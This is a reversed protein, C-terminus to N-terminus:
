SQSYSIRIFFISLLTGAIILTIWNNFIGFVDYRYEMDFSYVIGLFPLAIIGLKSSALMLFRVVRQLKNGGKFVQAIFFLAVSMM